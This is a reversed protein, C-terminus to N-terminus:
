VPAHPATLFCRCRRHYLVCCFRKQWGIRATRSGHRRRSYLIGHGTLGGGPEGTDYASIQGKGCVCFQDLCGHPELTCSFRPTNHQKKKKKKKKLHPREHFLLTTSCRSKVRTESEGIFRLWGASLCGSFLIGKSMLIINLFLLRRVRGGGRKSGAFLVQGLFSLIFLCLGDWVM